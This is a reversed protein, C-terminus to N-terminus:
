TYFIIIEKAEHHKSLLARNNELNWSRGWDINGTTNGTTNGTASKAGIDKHSTLYLIIM